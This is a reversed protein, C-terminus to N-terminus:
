RCTTTTIIGGHYSTCTVPPRFANAFGQFFAAAARRRRERESAVEREYQERDRTEIAEENLSKAQKEVNGLDENCEIAHARCYNEMKNWDTYPYAEALRAFYTEGYRKNCSEQKEKSAQDFKSPEIKCVIKVYKGWFAPNKV